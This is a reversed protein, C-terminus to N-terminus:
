PSELWMSAVESANGARDVTLVGLRLRGEVTADLRMFGSKAMAVQTGDVPAVFDLHGYYGAGSILQYRGPATEIVQLGHDHGSVYAAPASTAFVAALSDIMHRYRGNSMDQRSIGQSRAAPYATGIVPLPLWLWSKAQLLPFFYDKWGFYGAHEGGSVLPHHGAVIVIRGSAPALLARLSDLVAPEGAACGDAVGEPRPGGHLFWQTDLLVLRVPGIDAVAPGPCANAPLQIVRGGGEQAVIAQARLVAHWGADGDEKWDHNGPIFVGRAGSALVAAVQATLRRRAETYEPSTSDPIGSPYVNDGLFLAVSRAPAQALQATLAELVPEGRPDPDGGDGILFLSAVVSDAPLAPVPATKPLVQQTCGTFLVTALFAAACRRM